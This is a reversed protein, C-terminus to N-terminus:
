LNEQAKDLKQKLNKLEKPFEVWLGKIIGTLVNLSGSLLPTLSLWYPFEDKSQILLYISILAEGTLIITLLIILVLSFKRRSYPQIFKKFDTDITKDFLAQLPHDENDFKKKKLWVELEEHWKKMRFDKVLKSLAFDILWIVGFGIPILKWLEIGWGDPDIWLFKISQSNFLVIIGLLFWYFFNIRWGKPANEQCIVTIDEIFEDNAIKKTVGLLEPVLGVLVKADKASLYLAILQNVNYSRDSSEKM